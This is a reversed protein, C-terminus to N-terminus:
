ASAWEGMVLLRGDCERAAVSLEIARENRLVEGEPGIEGLDPTM